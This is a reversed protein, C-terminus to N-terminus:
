CRSWSALPPPSSSPQVWAGLSASAPSGQLLGQIALLAFFAFWAAALTAVVHALMTRAGQSWGSSWGAHMIVPFTLAGLLTLPVSLIV